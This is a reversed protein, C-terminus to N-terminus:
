GGSVPPFFAVEDGDHIKHDPKVLAQNVSVLLNVQGLAQSWSEGRTNSLHTILDAVDVSGAPLELREKGLGLSERIRAFYLIDIM